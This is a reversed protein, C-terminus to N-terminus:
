VPVKLATRGSRRLGLFGLLGLAASFLPLAAPLPIPDLRVNDINFHGCPATLCMGGITAIDPYLAGIVLQDLILSQDSFLYTSPQEGMFFIDEAVLSGDWYGQVLVNDYPDGSCPVSEDACYATDYPLIDFSIAYFIFDMTFNMSKAYSTGADDLHATGPITYYGLRGNIPSATIGGEQYEEGPLALEPLDSFTMVAATAPQVLTVVGLVAILKVIIRM